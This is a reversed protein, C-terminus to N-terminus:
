RRLKRTQIEDVLLLQPRDEMFPPINLTVNNRLLDEIEFGHDVM